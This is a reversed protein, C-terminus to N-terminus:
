KLQNQAQHTIGSSPVIMGFMDSYLSQLITYQLHM